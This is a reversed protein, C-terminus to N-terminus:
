SEDMLRSDIFNNVEEESLERKFKKVQARNMLSRARLKGEMTKLLDEYDYKLTSFYKKKAMLLKTRDIERKKRVTKKYNYDHSRGPHKRSMHGGLAQAKNFGMDCYKCPFPKARKRPKENLSYVKPKRKPRSTLKRRNKQPESEDPTDSAPEVPSSDLELKFNTIDEQSINPPNELVPELGKETMTEVNPLTQQIKQKGIDLRDSLIPSKQRFVSEYPSLTIRVTSQPNLVKSEEPSNQLSRKVSCPAGFPSLKDHMLPQRNRSSDPLPSLLSLPRFAPHEGSIFPSLLGRMCGDQSEKRPNFDLSM